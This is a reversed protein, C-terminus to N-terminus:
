RHSVWLGDRVPIVVSKLEPSAALKENYARVGVVQTPVGDSEADLVKGMCFVNDGLLMGGKALRSLCLDFLKLALNPDAAFYVHKIVDQFIVDFELGLSPLIDFIDGQMVHVRDQLGAMEIFHRAREAREPAIEISVVTSEPGLSRGLWIASYGIATGIDLVYRPVLSNLTLLTQVIAGELPGIIPIKEAMAVREMEQLTADVVSSGPRSRLMTLAYQSLLHHDVQPAIPLANASM